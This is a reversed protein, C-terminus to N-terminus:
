WARGGGSPYDDVVKHRGLGWDRLHHIKIDILNRDIARKVISEAFPGDFMSPFLTLIDIRMKGDGSVERDPRCGNRRNTRRM